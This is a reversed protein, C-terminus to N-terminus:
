ENVSRIESVSNVKLTQKGIFDNLDKCNCYSMASKLYDRLNDTWGKLTYKVPLVKTIGESTKCKGGSIDEQGKSSAMGYFVVNIPGLLKRENYSPIDESLNLRNRLEEKYSESYYGRWDVGDFTLKEFHDICCPAPEKKRGSLKYFKAGASEVCQAFLSGIMVWDAGLAFAKVIDDYNRIGGDAIIKTYDNENVFLNGLHLKKIENCEDILSAIPYHIGTNSSTICGAGSGISCRVYDIIPKNCFSYMKIIEAYTESNAINGVMITIFPTYTKALNCLTYIKKMHGNAIDICVKADNYDEKPNNVFYKEFESLSVAIWSDTARDLRTEIPVNRPIIPTIGNLYFHELNDLSVVSSMPATFIPLKNIKCESRSEIDTFKAPVITLDNYSYGIKTDIM